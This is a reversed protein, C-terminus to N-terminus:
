GADPEFEVDIEAVVEVEGPVAVRAKDYFGALTTYYYPGVYVVYLVGLTLVSLAWWGVFSLMLVFLEWKRGVMMEKSRTLAGRASVDPRDALIFPTMAYSLSKIIAPILTILHIPGVLVLALLRMGRGTRRMLFVALAIVPISLLVWLFIWLAMWMMGGLKRGLHTFFDPYLAMVHTHEGRSIKLYEHLVNVALAVLGLMVLLNIAFLLFWNLRGVAIDNFVGWALFKLTMVLMILVAATRQTGIAEKARIKLERRTTKM